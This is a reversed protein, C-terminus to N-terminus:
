FCNELGQENLQKGKITSIPLFTARGADKQKLLEIAKKADEETGTVINQMAGGLAIEMAVTYENPVTIVRSVPGHIGGLLGAASNKMVAKVSQSFGELHRELDELIKVRRFIEGTDLILKNSEAKRQDRKAKQNRLKIELGKLVNELAN